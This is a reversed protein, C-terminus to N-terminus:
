IPRERGIQESMYEALAMFTAFIFIFDYSVLYACTFTLFVMGPFLAFLAISFEKSIVDKSKRFIYFIKRWFRIFMWLFLLHGPIGMMMLFPMHTNDFFTEGGAVRNEWYKSYGIGSLPSRMMKKLDLNAMKFRYLVSSDKNLNVFTAIRNKIYDIRKVHGSEFKLNLTIFLLLLAFISLSFINAIKKPKLEHKFILLIIALPFFMLMVIWGSRYLGMVLAFLMSTILFIDLARKSERSAIILRVTLIAIGLLLFNANRFAARYGGKWTTFQWLPNGPWICMSIIILSYIIGGLIILNLYIRIDKSNKLTSLAIFYVGYYFLCRSGLILNQFDNNIMLDLIVTFVLYFMFLCVPIHKRIGPILARKLLLQSIWSITTFIYLLEVIKINKSAIEIGTVHLM